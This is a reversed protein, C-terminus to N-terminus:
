AALVAMAAAVAVGPTAALGLDRWADELAAAMVVADYDDTHGLLSPRLLFPQLEDQGGAIRVGRRALAKVLPPAAVGAPTRLAAVAPSPREAFPTAGLAAGAALVARNRRALDRQRAELGESRLLGCAVEAAVILSTAPTVASDGDRQRVRERHLDLTYAAVRDGREAARAWARESLWVFGLGPPLMVGKQSGAAVADIGWARPRLVAAALSTVADVLLLAEPAVQRLARALAEVDHLVGTSTESHVLTIAAPPPHAAVQAATAVPDFARGWPLDVDEVAFGFARAMGAWRDGFKGGRLALVRGGAPVAALLAAEFATTGSGTLVVVDDGPVAMLEALDSRVRRFTARFAETRHHVVPRSLAALVEPPVAVPGPAYLRPHFSAGSV